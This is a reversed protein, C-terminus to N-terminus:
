LWTVPDVAGGNVYVMFHLHCGTSYGTTGAYAILEGRDVQDGVGAAFSTLHNYSTALSAGKVFGHDVIMQNGYGTSYSASTVTGPAAAYIPEGCSASFDTGDHLKYVKLIPHMRMGYPSTIYTNAVPYNLFGTGQAAPATLSLNHRLARRQAIARLQDEVRTRESELTDLRALEIKKAAAVQKREVRLAGVKVVVDHKASEADAELRQKTALNEAAEVRHREVDDKTDQVRDETLVLLVEAAELQQLVVAQKNGVAEIGAIGDVVEQTTAADLGLGLSLAGVGGTQFNSIAFGALESRRDTVSRRGVQLDDRADDLRIVAEDLRVQMQEDFLTAAQVQSRLDALLSRADALDAVATEVRGQARLVQTSIEDIDMQQADIAKDIHSKRSELDSHDDASSPVPSLFAVVLLSALLALVVRAIHRGQPGCASIRPM